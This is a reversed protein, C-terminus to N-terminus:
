KALLTSMIEVKGKMMEIANAIDTMSIDQVVGSGKNGVSFTTEHLIKTLSEVQFFSETMKDYEEKTFSYYIKKM